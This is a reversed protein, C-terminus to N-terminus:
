APCDLRHDKAAVHRIRRLAAPGADKAPEFTVEVCDGVHVDSTLTPNAVSFCDGM